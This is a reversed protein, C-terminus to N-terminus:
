PRAFRVSPALWSPGARQSAVCAIRTSGCLWASSRARSSTARPARCARRRAATTRGAARADAGRRVARAGDDEDVARRAGVLEPGLRAPDLEAAAEDVLAPADRQRLGLASSPLARSADDGRRDAPSLATQGASSSPANMSRSAPSRRRSRRRCRGSGCRRRARGAARASRCSGSRTACRGAPAGRRAAQLDRDFALRRRGDGRDPRRPLPHLAGHADGGGAAGLSTLLAARAAAARAASNAAAAGRLAATGAARASARGARAARRSRSRRASRRRDRASARRAREPHM